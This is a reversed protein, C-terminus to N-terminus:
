CIKVTSGEASIWKGPLHGVGIREYVHSVHPVLPTAPAVLIFYHLRSDVSRGQELGLVVCQLLSTDRQELMDFYFKGADDGAADPSITRLRGSLAISSGQKAEMEGYSWPSHVDEWDFVGFKLNLYDIEGMYAMWSWSPPPFRHTQPFQIKTLHKNAPRYWLLARRLLGDQGKQGEDFIGFGGNARLAKLLRNQIGDVAIPRDSHRTFGLSSYTKYLNQFRIIKEGQSASM